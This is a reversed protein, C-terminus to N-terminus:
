KKAKKAKEVADNIKKAVTECDDASTVTVSSSGRFEDFDVYIEAILEEVNVSRNTELNRMVYFLQFSENVRDKIEYASVSSNKELLEKFENVSIMRIEGESEYASRRRLRLGM